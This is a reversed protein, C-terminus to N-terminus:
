VHGTLLAAVQGISLALDSDPPLALEGGDAFVLHVVVGTERRRHRGPSLELGWITVM